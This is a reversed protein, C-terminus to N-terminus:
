KEGNTSWLEDFKATQLATKWKVIYQKMGHINAISNRLQGFNPWLKKHRKHLLKQPLAGWIESRINYILTVVSCM